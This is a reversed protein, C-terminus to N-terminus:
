LKIGVSLVLSRGDSSWVGSEPYFSPRKTFYQQNTLNNIGFRITYHPPLKLTANLDLLGYAPVVGKAGNASPTGTNLPDSFSEGVYSYLLSASLFKYELELGNRSTWRPVTELRNDKIPHNETGTSISGETYYADFFATSTFLSWRWSHAAAFPHLSAYFEVGNTLINGVNTRYIYATGDPDTLAQSGLRNNYRLQFATIDYNLWRQVRGRMGIEANYGHADKVNPDTRELASAPILDKLIVPRYAQSVGGYLQNAPHFQHKFSIGLLAFQHPINTPLNDPLYAYTGSMKTTGNEYRIGPSISLQPTLYLLNEVFLAINQTRYHLDRKFPATLSLDYDTGSTGVGLQRRHLDNNMLQIGGVLVSKMKGVPYHHALRLESTYSHFNDIDVQRAKYQGTARNITDPVNAFALWQVSNRAGLVASTTWALHTRGNLQWDLTVSPVYIDPSFYNRSRTSQRPNQHFMSDTLPGPQQFRYTSRGLEAKLSFSPTFQYHLAAFQAQGESRSNERYGEYVRQHYYAYYSLKGVKGGIANYTSLLGYSGVSNVSEFGFAKATDARKTVYNLMGGFQAGYQLSATGRILEIREVSEMPPSYHSAPYGYMDSNTIVGNQRINYEWSRHPDLGRTAINLQNGSGDMDYVFVGPIKAFVQRGTKLAVNANTGALTIVESKKGALLYTQSVDPLPSVESSSKRGSITIEQLSYSNERLVIRLSTVQDADVQLAIRVPQFGLHTFQLTQTAVPVHILEFRGKEDTATALTSSPISVGVLTLPTNQQNTVIGQITGVQALAWDNVLCLLMLLTVKSM